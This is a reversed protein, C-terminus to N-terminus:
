FLRKARQSKRAETLFADNISWGRAIRGEVTGKKIKYFRCASIFTPFEKGKIKISAQNWFVKKRKM